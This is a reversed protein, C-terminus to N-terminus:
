PSRRRRRARDRGAGRRLDFRGAGAQAARSGLRLFVGQDVAVQPRTRAQRQRRAERAQACRRSPRTRRGRRRDARWSAPSRRARPRRDACPAATPLRRAGGSPGIRRQMSRIEAAAVIVFHEAGDGGFSAARNRPARRLPPRRPRASPVTPRARRAIDEDPRVAPRQREARLTEAMELGKPASATTQRDGAATECRVINTETIVQVSGQVAMAAGAGKHFMRAGVFLSIRSLASPWAKCVTETPWTKRCPKILATQFFPCSNHSNQSM